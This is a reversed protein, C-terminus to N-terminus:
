SYNVGFFFSSLFIHLNERQQKREQKRHGLDTQRTREVGDKSNGNLPEEGDCPVKTMIKFSKIELFSILSTQLVSSKRVNQSDSKIVKQSESQQNQQNM